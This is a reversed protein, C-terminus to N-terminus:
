RSLPIARARAAAGLVVAPLAAATGMDLWLGAAVFAALPSVQAPPTLWLAVPLTVCAAVFAALLGRPVAPRRARWAATAGVVAQM